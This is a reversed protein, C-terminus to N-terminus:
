SPPLNHRLYCYLQHLYGQVAVQEELPNALTQQPHAVIKPHQIALQQQIRHSSDLHQLFLTQQPRPCQAIKYWWM